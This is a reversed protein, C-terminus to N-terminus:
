EKTVVSITGNPEVRAIHVQEIDEIGQQRLQSRIEGMTLLERRATHRNVQGNSILPRPSPKLIRSAWKWRFGIADLAVSWLVITVVIILSDFISHAEGGIGVSAAESIILVLILDTMNLEGSERRGAVRMIAFVALYLVTGRILLEWISTSPMFITPWDM